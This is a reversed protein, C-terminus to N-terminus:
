LEFQSNLAPIAYVQLHLARSVTVEHPPAICMADRLIYIRPPLSASGSGAVSSAIYFM